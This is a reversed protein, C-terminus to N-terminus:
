MNETDHYEVEEWYNCYGNNQQKRCPDGDMGSNETYHWICNGCCKEM